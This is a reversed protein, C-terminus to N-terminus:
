LVGEYFLGVGLTLQAKAGYFKGIDIPSAERLIEHAEIPTM